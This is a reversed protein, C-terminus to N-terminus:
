RPEASRASLPRGPDIALARDVRPLAPGAMLRRAAATDRPGDVALVATLTDRAYWLATWGDPRERLLVEDGAGPSGFLALDHGLQTSFVYPAPDPAPDLATGPEALLATVLGQPTRLAGDWHGGPVWGHRTSRRRAVDGVAWLGEHLPTPSTAAALVRGHGDVLISGDPALPLTEALWDTAPRGGVAALVLDAALETGDQLQVGGPQVAGVSTSTALRVGAEAYWPATRAGVVGIAQALPAAAAELVTVEHGALAAVGAVEAGVWGAGIVVVRGPSRLRGRVTRADALTHLTLADDWGAPLRAHSGTAVVVHRAPYRGTATAVVPQPGSLDLETAPEDLRVEDALQHLDM